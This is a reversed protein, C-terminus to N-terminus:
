RLSGYIAEPNEQQYKILDDVFSFAYNGIDNPNPWNHMQNLVTIFEEARLGLAKIDTIVGYANRNVDGDFRMVLSKINTSADIGLGIMLRKAVSDNSEGITPYAKAMVKPMGGQDCGIKFGPGIAYLEVQSRRLDQAEIVSMPLARNSRIGGETLVPHLNGIGMQVGDIATPPHGFVIGTFKWGLSTLPYMPGGGYGLTGMLLEDIGVLGYNLFVSRHGSTANDKLSYM